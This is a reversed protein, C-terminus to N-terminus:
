REPGACLNRRGELATQSECQAPRAAMRLCAVAKGAHESPRQAHRGSLLCPPTSRRIQELAEETPIGRDMVWIQDAKGYQTEIKKLFDALTTKDTTNGALVEYAIPFGEPTVVLAIVVQVCDSRKDRLYGFRHIDEPNEPPNSEFYTSTLDYLLM